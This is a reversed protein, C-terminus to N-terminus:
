PLLNCFSDSERDRAIGRDQSAYLRIVLLILITIRQLIQIHNYFLIKLILIKTLFFLYFPLEQVYGMFNTKCKYHPGIVNCNINEM